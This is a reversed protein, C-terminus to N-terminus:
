RYGDQAAQTRRQRSEPRIGRCEQRCLLGGSGKQKRGDDRAHRGALRAQIKSSKASGTAADLSVETGVESELRAIAAPDRPQRKPAADATTGALAVIAAGIVFQSTKRLM